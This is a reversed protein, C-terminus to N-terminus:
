TYGPVTEDGLALREWEEWEKKEAQYGEHTDEEGNYDRWGEESSASALALLRERRREEKRERKSKYVHKFEKVKANYDETWAVMEPAAIETYPRLVLDDAFFRFPERSFVATKMEGRVNFVSSLIWGQGGLQEMTNQDTGSWFVSGRGHSHWWFQLTGPADKTQFMAKSLALANMVTSGVSNEQEVLIADVVHPGHPMLIVKGMGSVEKDDAKRVWFLIKQLVVPDITPNISFQM